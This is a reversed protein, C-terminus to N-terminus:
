DKKKRDKKKLYIQLQPATLVFLTMYYTIRLMKNIESMTTNKLDMERIAPRLFKDKSFLTGNYPYVVSQKDM